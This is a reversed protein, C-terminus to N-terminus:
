GTIFVDKHYLFSFLYKIWRVLFCSNYACTQRLSIYIYIFYCVLLMPVLYAVITYRGNKNAFQQDEVSGCREYYENNWFPVLQNEANNTSNNNLLTQYHQTLKYIEYDRINIQHKSTRLILNLRDMECTHKLSLDINEKRIRDLESKLVSKNSELAFNLKENRITDVELKKEMSSLQERLSRIQDEFLEKEQKM